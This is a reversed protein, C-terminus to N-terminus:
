INLPHIFHFREEFNTNAASNIIVDVEEAIESISNADIGLDSECLNGVVPALKSLMFDEYYKGHRQKM